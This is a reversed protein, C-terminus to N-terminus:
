YVWDGQHAAIRKANDFRFSSYVLGSVTPHDLLAREESASPESWQRAVYLRTPKGDLAPGYQDTLQHELPPMGQGSLYDQRYGGGRHMPWLQIWMSPCQASSQNIVLDDVLDREIWEGWQMTANGLPHDLIDGRAGGVGLRHGSARTVERLQAIFQTVYEGLLDWWLGLDFEDTWIDQGHRRLYEDRVPESFGFEDAFEPPRSQSRLCVFLGDFEYGKLLKAFRECLYDRVEPYAMSLVGWQKKERPRDVVLYEPHELAFNSQWATNVGHGRAGYSVKREADPALPKGEDFIPVYLYVPMGAEHALRPVVEFDDWDVELLEKMRASQDTGRADMFVGDTLHLREQRWHLSGAGLEDRWVEMRRRLSDVTRM